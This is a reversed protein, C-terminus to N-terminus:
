PSFSHFFFSHLNQLVRLLTSCPPLPFLLLFLLPAFLHLFLPTFYILHLSLSLSLPPPPSLLPLHPPCPITTKLKDEITDLAQLPLDDPRQKIRSDSSCFLWLQRANSAPPKTGKPAM